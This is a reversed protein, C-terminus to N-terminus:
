KDKARDLSNTLNFCEVYQRIPRKIHDIVFRQGDIKIQQLNHYLQKIENQVDTQNLTYHGAIELIETALQQDQQIQEVTFKAVEPSVWKKWRGTAIARDLLVNYLNSAQDIFRYELLKQEIAYLKLYARTEETGYQPAVNAAFVGAPIHQLLSIDDLYDANHEKLLVGHDAAMQALEQAASFDFKGAQTTSKVLTGTQGVAFIPMPLGESELRKKLETLFYNYENVGTLGGNTEETGVEYSIAPKNLSLRQEECFKILEVTKDLVFDIPVIKGQVFPDKTPDVMIMDFGAQIDALFSEKAITMAEDVPLHANREEDRQWPGGHDRCVYFHPFDLENAIKQLNEVFEFQDWGNVYGGGYKHLDIQNRSAIFILPFNHEKATEFCARIVNTSMPGVSLTSVNQLQHIDQMLEKFSLKTM